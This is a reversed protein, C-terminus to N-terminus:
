FVNDDLFLLIPCVCHIKPSIQAARTILTYTRGPKHMSSPYSMPRWAFLMATAIM